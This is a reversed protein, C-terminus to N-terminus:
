EYFVVENKTCEIRPNTEWEIVFEGATCDIWPKTLNGDQGFHTIMVRGYPTIKVGKANRVRNDTIKGFYHVKGEQTWKNKM